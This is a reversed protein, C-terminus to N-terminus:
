HLAIKQSTKIIIDAIKKTGDFDGLNGANRAYKDRNKYIENVCLVLTKATLDEEWLVRAAGSKLVENANEIQDGRSRAKSLPIFLTPKKLALLECLSNSGARSIVVDAWAFYNQIDNVFELQVYGEQTIDAIKGKGAIHVINFNLDALSERVAENIKQAGLSGGVILLNGKGAKFGHRREVKVSIGNYIEARLPSGTAIMKPQTATAKFTTCIVDVYKICMRNALGMTMDSEHAIVPIGLAAAARVVPYAVFGGKSFIAAPKLKKLNRKAQAIGKMLKFPISLNRIDISRRLKATSVSFYEVGAAQEAIIKREIGNHSGVYCIKEFHKKLYPLLAVCPVVHGATGGGTLVITGM